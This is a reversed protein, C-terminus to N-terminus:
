FQKVEQGSDLWEIADRLRAILAKASNVTLGRGHFGRMNDGPIVLRVIGVGSRPKEAQIGISQEDVVFNDKFEM